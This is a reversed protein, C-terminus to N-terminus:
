GEPKPILVSPLKHLANLNSLPKLPKLLNTLPQLFGKTGHADGM